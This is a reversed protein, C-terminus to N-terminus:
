FTLSLTWTSLIFILFAPFGALGVLFSVLRSARVWGEEVENGVDWAEGEGIGPLYLVEKSLEGEDMM